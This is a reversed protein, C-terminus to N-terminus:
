ANLRYGIGRVTEIINKTNDPDVKQRLHNIHVDIVNSMANSVFDWIHDFLQERNLVQNPNRMLYELLQFEKLTLEIDKDAVRVKRTTTNLEVDKVKLIVPLVEKPRRLLAKIRMNLEEPSFPKTLYDDAGSQLGSVKDQITDKGSLILVPIDIKKERVSKLVEIGDKKPLMWDIIAADYEDKCLELRQQAAEGDLLHDTVYGNHDLYRKISEGLKQDDEVLLVKM